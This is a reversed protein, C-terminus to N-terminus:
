NNKIRLENDMLENQTRCYFLGLNSKRINNNNKINERNKRYQLIMFIIICKYNFYLKCYNSLTIINLKLKQL